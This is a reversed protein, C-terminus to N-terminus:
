ARRVKASVTRDRANGDRGVTHLLRKDSCGRFSFSFDYKSNTRKYRRRRITRRSRPRRRETAVSTPVNPVIPFQNKKDFFVEDSITLVDPSATTSVLNTSFFVPSRRVQESVDFRSSNCCFAHRTQQYVSSDAVRMILLYTVFHRPGNEEVRRTFCQESIQKLFPLGIPVGISRVFLRATGFKRNKTTGTLGFTRKLSLRRTVVRIKWVFPEIINRLNQKKVGSRKLLCDNKKENANM